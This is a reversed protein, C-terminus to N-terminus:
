RWQAPIIKSYKSDVKEKTAKDVELVDTYWPKMRCDISIPAHLGVHFRHVSSARSYIDGAPEFRTFFTWLFEQMSSTAEDCNDVVLIVQWQQLEADEALLKALNPNEDYPCGQVVLTGPLFVKPKSCGVPLNGSFEMALDRRKEKGLGMLM